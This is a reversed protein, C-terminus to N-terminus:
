CYIASKTKKPSIDCKLIKLNYEDLINYDKEIYYDYATKGDVDIHFLTKRSTHLLQIIIDGYTDLNTEMLLLILFTQCYMYKINVDTGVNILMNVAHMDNITLTLPYVGKDTEINSDKNSHIYALM